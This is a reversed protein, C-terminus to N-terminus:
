RRDGGVGQAGARDIRSPREIRKPIAVANEALIRFWDDDGDWIPRIDIWIPTGSGFVEHVVPGPSAQWLGPPRGCKPAYIM